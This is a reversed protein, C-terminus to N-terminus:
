TPTFLTNCISDRWKKGPKYTTTDIKKVKTTMTQIDFCYVDVIGKKTPRCPSHQFLYNAIDISTRYTLKSYISHLTEENQKFEYYYFHSLLQTCDKLTQYVLALNCKKGMKYKTKLEKCEELTKCEIIERIIYYLEEKKTKCGKDSEELQLSRQINTLQTCIIKFSYAFAEDLMTETKKSQCNYTEKLKKYVEQGLPKFPLSIGLSISDILQSRKYKWLPCEEELNPEYDDIKEEIKKFVDFPCKKWGSERYMPIHRFQHMIHNAISYYKNSDFQCEYLASIILQHTDALSDFLTPQLGLHSNIISVRSQNKYEEQPYYYTYSTGFDIFVPYYGRTPCLLTEGNKFRYAFYSHPDCEKLLVNDIHLDYHCFQLTDIGQQIAALSLILQSAILQEDKSRLVHKLHINSVYELFLVHRPKYKTKDSEKTFLTCEKTQKNICNECHCNHKTNEDIFRNVIPLTTSGYSYVFHPSFTRMKNTQSCIFEEHENVRDPYASIKYVVQTEKEDVKIKKHILGCIAQLGKRKFVNLFSWSPLSTALDNTIHTYDELSNM